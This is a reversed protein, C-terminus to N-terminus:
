GGLGETLVTAARGTTPRRLRDRKRASAIADADPMPIADQKAQIAAAARQADQQAHRSKRAQDASSVASGVAIAGLAATVGM